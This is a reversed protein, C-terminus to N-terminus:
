EVYSWPVHIDFLLAYETRVGNGVDSPVPYCDLVQRDISPAGAARYTVAPKWILRRTIIGFHQIPLTRSAIDSDPLRPYRPWEGASKFMWSVILLRIRTCALLRVTHLQLLNSERKGLPLGSCGNCPREMCVAALVLRGLLTASSPMFVWNLCGKRIIWYLLSAFGALFGLGPLNAVQVVIRQQVHVHAVVPGDTNEYENFIISM